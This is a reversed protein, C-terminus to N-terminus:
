AQVRSMFIHTQDIDKVYHIPPMNDGRDGMQWQVTDSECAQLADALYSLTIHCNEDKGELQCSIEEVGKHGGYNSTINILGDTVDVTGTQCILRLRNVANLLEQRDVTMNTLITQQLLMQIVNSPYEGFMKTSYYLGKDTKVFVMRDNETIIASEYGILHDVLGSPITVGPPADTDLVVVRTTDPATAMMREGDCYVNWFMQNRMTIQTDGDLLRFVMGCRKLLEGLKYVTKWGDVPIKPMALYQEANYLGLIYNAKGENVKLKGNDEVLQIRERNFKKVLGALTVHKVLIKGPVDIHAEVTMIMGKAEDGGRITLSGDKAELEVGTFADYMHAKPVLKSILDLAYSLVERDVTVNM